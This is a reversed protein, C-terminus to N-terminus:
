FSTGCRSNVNARIQAATTFTASGPLNVSSLLSADPVGLMLRILILGDVFAQQSNSGDIDYANAAIGNAIFQEVSVPAGPQARPGNFTISTLLAAGRVGAMYRFIAVADKFPQRAGDGDVDLDCTPAPAGNITFSKNAFGFGSAPAYSFNGESDFLVTSTCTGASTCGPAMTATVKFLKQGPAAATGAATDTNIAGPNLCTPNAGGATTDALDPWGVAGSARVSTDVWGMVAQATTATLPQVQAAAIRCKTYEESITLNTLHAPNYKVKLGLGSEPGASDDTYMGYFTFTSGAPVALTTSEISAGGATLTPKVTQTAHVSASLALLGLATALGCAGLRQQSQKFIM